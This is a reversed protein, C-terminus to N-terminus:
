KMFIQIIQAVAACFVVLGTLLKIGTGIKAVEEKLPDIDEKISKEVTLIHSENLNTRRIHEALVAEQRALIVNINSVDRKIGRIDDYMVTKLDDDNSQGAM